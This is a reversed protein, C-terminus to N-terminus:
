ILCAKSRKALASLNLHSHCSHVSRFLGHIPISIGHSSPVLLKKGCDCTVTLLPSVVLKQSDIHNSPVAGFAIAGRM